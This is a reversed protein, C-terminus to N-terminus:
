FFRSWWDLSGPKNKKLHERFDEGLRQSAYIPVSFNLIHVELKSHKYYDLYDINFIISQHIRFFNFDQLYRDEFSKLSQKTVVESRDKLAIHTNKDAIEVYVIDSMPVAVENGDLDRVYDNKPKGENRMWKLIQELKEDSLEFNFTREHLKKFIDGMMETINEGNLPKKVYLGGFYKLGRISYDESGYATIFVPIFRSFGQEKVHSIVDFAELDGGLRIDTFIILPKEQLILDIGSQYSYAEGVINVHPFQEKIMHKLANMEEIVDEIIVARIEDMYEFPNRQTTQSLNM